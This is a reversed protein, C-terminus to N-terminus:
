EYTSGQIAYIMRYVRTFFSNSERNSRSYRMFEAKRDPHTHLFRITQSVCYPNETSTGVEALLRRYFALRDDVAIRHAM